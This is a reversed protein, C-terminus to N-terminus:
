LLTGPMAPTAAPPDIDDSHTRAAGAATTTFLCATTAAVTPALAPTCCQLLARARTKEWNAGGLRKRDVRQNM